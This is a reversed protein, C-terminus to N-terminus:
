WNLRQPWSFRGSRTSVAHGPTSSHRCPTPCLGPLPTRLTRPALSSPPHADKTGEPEGQDSGQGTEATALKGTMHGQEPSNQEPRGIPQADASREAMQLDVHNCRYLTGNVDVVFSHPAVKQICQGLPWRGTRDGPLPKMRIRDGVILEPLDRASRDYTSKAMRRKWRLNETSYRLLFSDSRSPRYLVTSFSHRAM